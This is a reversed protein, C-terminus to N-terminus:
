QKPQEKCTSYSKCEFDSTAYCKCDCHNLYPLGKPCCVYPCGTSGGCFYTMAVLNGPCLDTTIPTTKNPDITGCNAQYAKEGKSERELQERVAKYRIIMKNNQEIWQPCESIDKEGQCQQNIQELSEILKNLNNIRDEKSDALSLNTLCFLFTVIIVILPIRKM